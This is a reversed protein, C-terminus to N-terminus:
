FQIWVRVRPDRDRQRVIRAPRDDDRDRQRVVRARRDNDRDRQYYGYDDRDRKNKKRDGAEASTALLAFASAAAVLTLIFSRMRVNSEIRLLCNSKNDEKPGNRGIDIGRPLRGWGYGMDLAKRERIRTIHKGVAPL